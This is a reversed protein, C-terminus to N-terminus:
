ISFLHCHDPFNIFGIFENIIKNTIGYKKFNNPLEDADIFLKIKNLADNIEDFKIKWIKVHLSYDFSLYVNVLDKSFGGCKDNIRAIAYKYQPYNIFESKYLSIGEFLKNYDLDIIESEHISYMYNMVISLSLKFLNISQFSKKNLALQHERYNIKELDRKNDELYKEIMINIEDLIQKTTKDQKRDM